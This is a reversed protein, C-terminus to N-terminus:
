SVSLKKYVCVIIFSAIVLKEKHTAKFCICFFKKKIMESERVVSEIFM